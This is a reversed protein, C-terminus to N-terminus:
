VAQSREYLIWLLPEEVDTLKALAALGDSRAQSEFEKNEFIRAVLTKSRM